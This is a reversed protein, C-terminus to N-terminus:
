NYFFLFSGGEESRVRRLRVQTWRYDGEDEYAEDPEGYISKLYNVVSLMQPANPETSTFLTIYQEYINVRWRVDGIQLISDSYSLMDDQRAIASIQELMSDNLVLQRGFFSQLTDSKQLENEFGNGEVCSTVQRCGTMLLVLDFVIFCKAAWLISRIYKFM